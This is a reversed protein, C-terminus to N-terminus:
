RLDADAEQFGAAAPDRRPEVPHVAVELVLAEVVGPELRLWALQELPVAPDRELRDLAREVHQRVVDPRGLDEPRGVIRVGVPEEGASGRHDRPTGRQGFGGLVPDQGAARHPEVAERLRPRGMAAIRARSTVLGPTPITPSKPACRGLWTAVLSASAGAPRRGSHTGVSSTIGSFGSARSARYAPRNMEGPLGYRLMSPASAAM